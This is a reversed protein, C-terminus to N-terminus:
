NQSSPIAPAIDKIQPIPAIKEQTTNKVEQKEDKKLPEVTKKSKIESSVQKTENMKISSKNEVNINEIKNDLKLYNTDWRLDIYKVKKNQLNKLTQLISGIDQIRYFTKDSLEGLRILALDLQIYVDKPNRFDMYKIKAGAYKEIEQALHFVTAVKQPSWNNYNDGSIDYSLVLYTKYSKDLPLYDGRILKGCTTFFAVPAVDLNPAISLAPTLEEIHVILRAPFGLRRIYVNKIPPLEKISLSLSTPNILYIPKYPLDVARLALLIKKDSTINNGVIKLYANNELRDFASPTLYWGQMTLLKYTIICLCVLFVFSFIAHIRKLRMKARRVNREMQSKKIRRQMAINESYSNNDLM